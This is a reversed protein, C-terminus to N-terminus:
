KTISFETIDKRHIADFLRVSVLPAPVKFTYAGMSDLQGLLVSQEKSDAYVLCSPYKLPNKVFLSIIKTSDSDSNIKLFFDEAARQRELPIPRFVISFVFLAPLALAM